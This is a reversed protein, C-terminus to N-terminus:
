RKMENLHCIDDQFIRITATRDPGIAILTEMVPEAYTTKTPGRALGNTHILAHLLEASTADSITKNTYGEGLWEPTKKFPEDFVEYGMFTEFTVNPGKCVAKFLNHSQPNWNYDTKESTAM